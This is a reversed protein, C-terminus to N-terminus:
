IYICSYLYICMSTYSTCIHMDYMYWVEYLWIYATTGHITSFVCYETLLCHLLVKHLKVRSLEPNCYKKSLIGNVVHLCTKEPFKKASFNLFSAKCYLPQLVTQTFILAVGRNNWQSNPKCKKGQSVWLCTNCQSQNPCLRQIVLINSRSLSM